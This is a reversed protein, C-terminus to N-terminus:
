LCFLPSFNSWFESPSSTLHSHFEELIQIEILIRSSEYFFNFCKSWFVPSFSFDSNQHYVQWIVISNKLFQLLIQLRVEVSQYSIGQIYKYNIKFILNPTPLVFWSDSLFSFHHLSTSASARTRTSPSLFRTSIIFLRSESFM